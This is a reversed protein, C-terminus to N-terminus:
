PTQKLLLITKRELNGENNLVLINTILFNSLHNVTDATPKTEARRQKIFKM